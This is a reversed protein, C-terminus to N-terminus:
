KRLDPLIILDNFFFKRQMKVMQMQNKTKQTVNIQILQPQIVVPVAFLSTRYM